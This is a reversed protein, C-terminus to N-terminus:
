LNSPTSVWYVNCMKTNHGSLNYVWLKKRPQKILCQSFYCISHKFGTFVSPTTNVSSYIENGLFIHVSVHTELKWFMQQLVRANCIRQFKACSSYFYQHKICTNCAGCRLQQSKTRTWFLLIGLTLFVIVWIKNSSLASTNTSFSMLIEKHGANRLVVFYICDTISERQLVHM